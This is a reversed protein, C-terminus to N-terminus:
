KSVNGKLKTSVDFYDNCFGTVLAIFPQEACPMYSILKNMIFFM